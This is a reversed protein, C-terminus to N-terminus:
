MAEILIASNTIEIVKGNISSHVTAGLKGTPIEGIKQGIKVKDGVKVIPKAPEGTHQKLNIKVREPKIEFSKRAAEREFRELDLHQSIRKSPILRYKRTDNAAQVKHYLSKPKSIRKKLKGNLFNPLVGVPCAYLGCIGCECCLHAMQTVSNDVDEFAMPHQALRMIKHPQLDHGLLYRPCTETCMYCQCCAMQALKMLRGIDPKKMKVLYHEKPLLVIGQTTKDISSEKSEVIQGMVPGGTLIEKGTYDIDFYSLLDTIYTGVPVFCTIPEGVDGCITVNCMTVPRNEVANHINFLTTVNNVVIGVDIPISGQPVIRGTVEYVLVHEDGSPYIDDLLFLEINSEKYIASELANIAEKNKKKVAIIGKKAGCADCAAKLGSVIEEPHDEMLHKDSSLLPECEAGNGIVIGAKNQLKVHTPFGGGGAGVVGAERIKEIIGTM